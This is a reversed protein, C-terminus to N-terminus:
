VSKLPMTFQSLLLFCRVHFSCKWIEVAINESQSELLSISDCKNKDSPSVASCKNLLHWWKFRNRISVATFLIRRFTHFSVNQPLKVGTSAKPNENRVFNSNRSEKKYVKKLAVRPLIERLNYLLSNKKRSM